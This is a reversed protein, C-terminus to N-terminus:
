PAHTEADAPTQAYNGRADTRKKDAQRQARDRTIAIDARRQTDRARRERHAERARTTVQQSSSTPEVNSAAWRRARGDVRSGEGRPRRRRTDM